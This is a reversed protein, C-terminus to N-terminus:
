NQQRLSWSLYAIALYAPGFYYTYKPMFFYATVLYLVPFIFLETWHGQKKFIRYGTWVSFGGNILILVFEVMTVRTIFPLKTVVFTLIFGIAICGIWLQKDINQWLSKMFNM